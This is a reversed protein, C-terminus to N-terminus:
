NQPPQPTQPNVTSTDTGAAIASKKVDAEAKTATTKENMRTVVNGGLVAGAVPIAIPATEKICCAIAIATSLVFTSYPRQTNGFFDAIKDWNIAFM